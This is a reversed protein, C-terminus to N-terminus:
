DPEPPPPPTPPAVSNATSRLGAIIMDINDRDHRKSLPRWLQLFGCMKYVVDTVHCPIVHEIMLKNRVNWLTWVLTGMALWLSPRVMCPFSLIERFMDPLNDHCWMVGVVDRFCSWLFIVAPCRFVIHNPDKPVGCLPCLGDSPGNRKIVETGSPLCGHVWQWLFICIKMPLKIEWLLTLETPGPTALIAHYLSKTSFTGSPELHWSITDHELTPSHLAICELMEEWQERELPGFTYRFVICGLDELAAGV